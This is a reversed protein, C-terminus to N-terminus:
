KSAWYDFVFLQDIWPMADIVFLEHAPHHRYADRDAEDVFTFTAGHTFGLSKGRGSVETGWEFARIQPIAGPLACMSQIVEHRKAEPAGPKFKLLVVHRLPRGGAPEGPAGQM